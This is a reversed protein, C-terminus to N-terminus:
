CRNEIGSGGHLYKAGPIQEAIRRCHDVDVGFVLTKGRAHKKYAEAIGFETGMMADALAEMNFDNKSTRIGELDYDLTVRKCKIPALFGENIGRELPFEYIIDQFIDDLGRGDARNPTATFGLCLRPSFYEIIKKYTNAAALHCEDCIIIDFDDHKFNELRKVLTQISAVVVKEGNSTSKGQEMGIPCDYYKSAQKLLEQRHALILVRGNTPIRSFTFTKGAGCCAQILFSGSGLLEIKDLIEQQYYRTKLNM